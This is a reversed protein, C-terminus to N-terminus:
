GLAMAARYLGADWAAGFAHAHRAPAKPGLADACRADRVLGAVDADVVQFRAWRAVLLVNYAHGGGDSRAADLQRARLATSLLEVRPAPAACTQLDVLAEDCATYTMAENPFSIDLIRRAAQEEPTAEIGTGVHWMWLQLLLDVVHEAGRRWPLEFWGEPGGVSVERLLTFVDLTAHRTRVRKTPALQADPPVRGAHPKRHRNLPM